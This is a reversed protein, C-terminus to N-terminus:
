TMTAPGASPSTLVPPPFRTKGEEHRKLRWSAGTQARPGRGGGTLSGWIGLCIQESAKVGQIDRETTLATETGPDDCCGSGTM